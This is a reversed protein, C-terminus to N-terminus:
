TFEDFFTLVLRDLSRSSIIHTLIVGDSIISFNAEAHSLLLVATDHTTGTAIGFLPAYLSAGMEGLEEDTSEDQQFDPLFLILASVAKKLLRGGESPMTFEARNFFESSGCEGFDGVAYSTIEGGKTEQLSPVCIDVGVFEFVSLRLRTAPNIM